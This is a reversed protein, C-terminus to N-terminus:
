ARKQLRLVLGRAQGEIDVMEPAGAPSAVRSGTSRTVMDQTAEALQMAPSEAAANARMADRDEHGLANFLIERFRRPAPAQAPARGAAGPAAAVQFSAATRVAVRQGPEFSEAESLETPVPEADGDLWALHSVEAETVGLLLKRGGVNVVVVQAKNGVRAASVVTLDSHVARALKTRRFRQLLAAAGLGSVLVALAIMRFPSPGSASAVPASAPTKRLWPGPAAKAASEPKPASAVKPPEPIVAKPPEPIAAAPALEATASAKAREVSAPAKPRQVVAKPLWQAVAAKAPKAVVAPEAAAAETSTAEQAKGPAAYLAAALLSASLARIPQRALTM